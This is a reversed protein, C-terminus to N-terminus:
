AMPLRRYGSFCLRNRSVLESRNQGKGNRIAIRAWLIPLTRRGDLRAGDAGGEAIPEIADNQAHV